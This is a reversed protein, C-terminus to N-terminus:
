LRRRGQCRHPRHGPHRRAAGQPDAGRGKAAAGRRRPTLDAKDFEFLADAALDIITGMDTVRINLGSIDGTLNSVTGTM